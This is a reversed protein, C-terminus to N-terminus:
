PTGRGETRDAFQCASDKEWRDLSFRALPLPALSSALGFAGAFHFALAIVPSYLGLCLYAIAGDIPASGFLERIGERFALGDRARIALAAWTANTTADALFALLVAPVIAPWRTPHAGLLHLVLSASFTATAVQARNFVARVVTTGGRLEVPDLCGIFAVLAAHAPPLVLAAALSAPLAMSLTFGRVFRVVLLDGALVAAVWPVLELIAVDASRWTVAAHWSLGAIMVLSALWFFVPDSSAL